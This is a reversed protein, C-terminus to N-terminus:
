LYLTFGARVFHLCRYRFTGIQCMQIAGWTCTASKLTTLTVTIFQSEGTVLHKLSASPPQNAAM